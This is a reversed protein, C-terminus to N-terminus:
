FHFLILHFLISNPCYFWIITARDQLLFVSKQTQTLKIGLQWWNPASGLREGKERLLTRFGNRRRNADFLNDFLNGLSFQDFRNVIHKIKLFRHNFGWFICPISFTLIWRYRLDSRKYLNQYTTIELNKEQKWSIM